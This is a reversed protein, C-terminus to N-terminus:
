GDLHMKSHRNNLGNRPDVVCLSHIAVVVWKMALPKCSFHPLHRQLEVAAMLNFMLVVAMVVLLELSCTSSTKRLSTAKFPLLVAVSDCELQCAVVTVPRQVLGTM